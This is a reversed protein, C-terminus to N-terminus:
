LLALAGRLPLAGARRVRARGRGALHQEAMSLLLVGGGVEALLGPRHVPRGRELTAALDVSGLLRDRGCPAAGAGPRSDAPLSGQLLRLWRDRVPGAGARLVIGGFRFPDAAFLLTARLADAWIEAGTM